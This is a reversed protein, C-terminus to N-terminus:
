VPRPGSRRGAADNKKKIRDYKIQEASMAPRSKDMLTGRTAEVKTAPGRGIHSRIAADLAASPKGMGPKTKLTGISSLRGRSMKM